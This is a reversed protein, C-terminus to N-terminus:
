IILWCLGIMISLLSLAGLFLSYGNFGFHHVIIHSIINLFKIFFIMSISAGILYFLIYLVKELTSSFSLVYIFAFLHSGGATGHLTGIGFSFKLSGNNRKDHDSFKANGYMSYLSSIGMYILMVAIIHEPISSLTHIDFIDKFSLAFIFFILLGLAHGLSWYFGIRYRQSSNKTTLTAVAALHDPGANTHILGAILGSVLIM